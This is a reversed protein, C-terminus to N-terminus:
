RSSGTHALAPAAGWGGRQGLVAFRAFLSESFWGRSEAARAAAAHATSGGAFARMATVDRWISFTAQRFWPAEGLGAKLLCGDAEGIERTISPERRWFAAAHAPRISARTLAAVPAPLPRSADARFPRAGAWAGRSQLPALFVTWDEAARDRFRAFVGAEVQERASREDPWVALIAYTSLNPVPTFGEGAGTGLLKSFGIRPTRRLARRALGMQAFAWLRASPADFRFLSLSVTQSRANM